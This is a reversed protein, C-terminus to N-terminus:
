ITAILINIQVKKSIAVLVLEQFKLGVIWYHKLYIRTHASLICFLYVFLFGFWNTVLQERFGLRKLILLNRRVVRYMDTCIGTYVYLIGLPRSAFIFEFIDPFEHKRKGGSSPSDLYRTALQQFALLVPGSPNTTGPQSFFPRPSVM